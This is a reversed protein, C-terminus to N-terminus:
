LEMVPVEEAPAGLPRGLLLAAKREFEAGSGSVLFREQGGAGRLDHEKLYDALERAACDSASVLETEPGLYERLADAIIGYHTCGLLLAAAKAKRVPELYRAVADLLLPDDKEGHGGEILPVFDPCSVALIERGPCRQQLAKAFAGSRISAATAIVALPGDGATRSMRKVSSRLVGFTPVPYTDLIEPTNSSLTGCAALIAKVGCGAVCDLDQVAMRRLQDLTKAGYPLRGTDGFFVLSEEPLLRRLAKVATLGGMGSDFIGIPRNDM